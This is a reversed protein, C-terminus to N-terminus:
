SASPSFYTPSRASVTQPKVDVIRVLVMLKHGIRSDTIKWFVHEIESIQFTQNDAPRRHWGKIAHHQFHEGVSLTPFPSDSQWAVVPTNMWSSEYVELHYQIPLSTM